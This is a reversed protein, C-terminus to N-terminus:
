IQLFSILYLNQYGPFRFVHTSPNQRPVWILEFHGKPLFQSPLFLCVFSLHFNFVIFQLFILLSVSTTAPLLMCLLALGSHWTFEELHEQCM